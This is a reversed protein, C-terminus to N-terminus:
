RTAQPNSAVITDLKTARLSLVVPTPQAGESFSQIQLGTGIITNLLISLPWHSAGVKDRLGQDTWSATTWNGDLYGPGIVIGFPDTRDAFGGCFCPHVGVHVFVGGPALVRHAEALAAPYDVMDTHVMISLVAPVSNSAFPLSVADGQVAPLRGRAHRLMGASIEVGIPHRGLSEVREAYIGTGSGIELCTGAGPGLLEVIAQDIGLADAFGGAGHSRQSALFTDEYWDAIDDYPATTPM